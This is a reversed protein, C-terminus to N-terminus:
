PSQTAYTVSMQDVRSISTMLMNAPCITQSATFQTSFRTIRWSLGAPAYKMRKVM